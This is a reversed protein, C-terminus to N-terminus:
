CLGQHCCPLSHAIAGPLPPALTGAAAGPQGGAPWAAGVKHYAETLLHTFYAPVVQSTIEMDNYAVQAAPLCAPLCAPLFTPLCATRTAEAFRRASRWCVNGWPESQLGGGIGPQAGAGAIRQGM